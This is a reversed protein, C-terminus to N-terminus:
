FFAAINGAIFKTYYRSAGLLNETIAYRSMVGIRPTFDEQAMARNFLGTVYPSYIVGADATGPGKYGVVVTNDTNYTDRFVKITGNLTGVEAFTHSADVNAKNATFMGNNSLAQLATAVTPSVICFNGVGRRTRTGIANAEFIIKNALAAFNEQSWRGDSASVDFTGNDVAVAKIKAVLERDLEAQVEYQLVNVMEREVDVGHMAKIDQAAELSFSAALKRTKAEIAVKDIKLGLEPMKILSTTTNGDRVLDLNWDEGASTLVGTGDDATSSSTGGASTANSGSYGSYSPVVDFAAEEENGDDAYIFRLAYALGVPGTMAQVGVVQNAFLAPFTRRVLALSIPEFVGDQNTNSQDHAVNAAPTDSTARSEAFLQQRLNGAKQNELLIAMNEKVYEDPLDKISMKGEIKSWEEILQKANRNM